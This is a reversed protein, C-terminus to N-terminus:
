GFCVFLIGYIVPQHLMYIILSHRGLWELPASKGHHLFRFWDNKVTIKHLFYGTIFLFIWPLLSFYDTSFFSDAPFGLYATFLNAYLDRPLAGFSFVEFGFCGDSVNRFVLFLLSSFLIGIYPNCNQLGKNLPIMILMASGLFTLVGFLVLSDPMFLITTLSIVVGCLFVTVGRKLKRSGISWCFGSLLIFSFCISQQWIYSATSRYWTWNQGFIYVIDWIGHYILMNILIFGRITDLLAYRKQKM